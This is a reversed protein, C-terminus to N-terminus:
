SPCQQWSAEKSRGQLRVTFLHLEFHPAVERGVQQLQNHLIRCEPLLLLLQLLLPAIVLQEELPVPTFCPVAAIWCSSGAPAPVGLSHKVPLPIGLHLHTLEPRQSFEATGFAECM